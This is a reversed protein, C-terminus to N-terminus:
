PQQPSYIELGQDSFFLKQRISSPNTADIVFNPVVSTNYRIRWTDCMITGGESM